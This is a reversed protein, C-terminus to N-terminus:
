HKRLLISMIEAVKGRKFGEMSACLCYQETQLVPFLKAEFLTDTLMYIRYVQKLQRPMGHKLATSVRRHM